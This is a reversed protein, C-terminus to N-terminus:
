VIELKLGAKLLGDLLKEVLEDLFTTRSMLERARRPFDPQMELLDHVAAKAQDELGLQGAAAAQILPDWFVPASFRIAYKWAEDYNGHYYHYMFPTFSDIAPYRPNIQMAKEWLQMGEEWHGLLCFLLGSTHIIYSNFPNLSTSMRLKAVCRDTQHQFYRLVAETLHIIQCEPDLTIARRALREAKELSAGEVGLDFAYNYCYANSLMSLVVPNDPNNKAAHELAELAAFYADRTFVKLYHEHCFIAEHVDMNDPRKKMSEKSILSPIIGSYDALASVVLRTINDEIELINLATQTYEHAQTWIKVGTRTDTLSASVRLTDGHIQVRGQLVFRAGYRRVIEDIEVARGGYEELPGVMRLERFHALGAIISETISDAVAKNETSSTSGFPIVAITLGHDVISASSPTMTFESEAEAQPVLNHRFLPIYSRNPIEIRIDDHAGEDLYYRALKGRLRSALVRVTTDTQPNFVEPYGLADVAITYQKINLTQDSLASLVVFKLFSSLQPSERFFSSSLIRNLQTRIAQKTSKDLVLVGRSKSDINRKKIM